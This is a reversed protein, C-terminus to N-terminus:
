TPNPSTPLIPFGKGQFSLRKLSFCGELGEIPVPKKPRKSEFYDEFQHYHRMVFKKSGIVRSKPPKLKCGWTSSFKM